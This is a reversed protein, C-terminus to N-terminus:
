KSIAEVLAVVPPLIELVWKGWRVLRTPSSPHPPFLGRRAGVEVELWRALLERKVGSAELEDLIQEARYLMEVRVEVRRAVQDSDPQAIAALTQWELHLSQLRACAEFVHARGSVGTLLQLRDRSGPISSHPPNLPPM